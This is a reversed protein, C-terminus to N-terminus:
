LPNDQIFKITIQVLEAPSHEQLFHGAGKVTVHPQGQAGPVSDMFRKEGGKTVPDSDSFACLMPKQWQKYVAWARRNDAIAVNDPFIPVLTPFQRGGALYSEDPFPAGYAQQESTSLLDGNSMTLVDQPSFGPSEACYKVWHMFGMSSTDAMMSMSMEIANPAVPLSEYYARMPKSAEEFQEPAIGAADPLGTNAIVIRAFRDANEAAVRLGILGGWDQCFLNIGHLEKQALLSAIWAVHRAYTYNERLTPKDSKGFGILDPAIVRYGAEVFHPVMKRYLFSWAPQGHMLLVVEGDAPGEDIFHMRLEGGEGDDLLVYNPAFPYDPLNVFFSDPTRKFDV